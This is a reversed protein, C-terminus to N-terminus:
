KLIFYNSDELNKIRSNVEGKHLNKTQKMCDVCERGMYVKLNREKLFNKGNSNESVTYGTTKSFWDTLIYLGVILAILVGITILSRIFKKM